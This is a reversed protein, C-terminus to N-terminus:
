IRGRGFIGICTYLGLAVFAALGFGGLAALFWLLMFILGTAAVYFARTYDEVAMPRRKRHKEMM